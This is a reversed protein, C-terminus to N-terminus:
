EFPPVRRRQPTHLRQQKGPGYGPAAVYESHSQRDSPYRRGARVLWGGPECFDGVELYRKGAAQLAAGRAVRHRVAGWQQAQTGTCGATRHPEVANRTSRRQLRIGPNPGLVAPQTDEVSGKGAEPEQHNRLAQRRPLRLAARQRKGPIRKQVRRGVPQPAIRRPIGLRRAHNEPGYM